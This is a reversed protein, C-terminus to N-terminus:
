APSLEASPMRAVAVRAAWSSRRVPPRFRETIATAVVVPVPHILSASAEASYYMNLPSLAITDICYENRGLQSRAPTHGSM